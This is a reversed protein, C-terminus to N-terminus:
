ERVHDEGLVHADDLLVLRLELLQHLLREREVDALLVRLADGVQERLLARAELEAAGVLQEDLSRRNGPSDLSSSLAGIVSRRATRNGLWLARATRSSHASATHAPQSPVRGASAWAGSIMRIAVSTGSPEEQNWIRFSVPSRQFCAEPPRTVTRRKGPPTAPSSGSTTRLIRSPVSFAPTSVETPTASISRETKAIPMGSM